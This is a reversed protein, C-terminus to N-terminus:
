LPWGPPAFQRMRRVFPNMIPGGGPRAFTGCLSGSPRGTVLRRALYWITPEGGRTHKGAEVLRLLSVVAPQRNTTDHRRQGTPTMAAQWPAARSSAGIDHDEVNEHVQNRPRNGGITKDQQVGHNGFVPFLPRHFSQQRAGIAATQQPVRGSYARTALTADLRMVIPLLSYPFFLPLRFPPCRANNARM